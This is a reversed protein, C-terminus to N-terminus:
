CGTGCKLGDRQLPSGQHGHKHTIVELAVNMRERYSFYSTWCDLKSLWPPFMCMNVAKLTKPMTPQLLPHTIHNFSPTGGTTVAWPPMQTLTTTPAPIVSDMREPRLARKNRQNLASGGLSSITAREETYQVQLCPSLSHPFGVAAM